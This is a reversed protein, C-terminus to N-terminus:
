ADTKPVFVGHFGLPVHTELFARALPGDGLHQADFVVFHSRHELGDYVLSLLWGHDESTARPHPVFVAESPFQHPPFEFSRTLGSDVDVSVIASPPGILASAESPHELLHVYRHRTGELHPAVRPFEGTRHRLFQTEARGRKPDIRLRALQGSPAGGRKGTSPKGTSLVSGLWDRSRPYDQHRVLDVIIRDGDEFANATHWAWFPNISFQRPSAPADLPFVVVQTPANTKWTHADVFTKRALLIPLLEIHLPSLFVIAHRETVAFDHIMTPYPLRFSTLRGATGDARLLMLDLEGPVGLRVGVNIFSGDPRRHPHATFTQLVAGDLDTEGITELTSPDIELPKGAECLAFVRENWALMSTNAPNKGGGKATRLARLPNFFGPARTGYGGFYARGRRREELLGPTSLLRVAGEARGADLRLATVLGDGDFWHGYRHGLHSFLGPGNRYLTGSLAEPFRGETRLASFGQERPETLSRHFLTRPDSTLSGDAM